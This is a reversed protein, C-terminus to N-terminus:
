SNLSDPAFTVALVVLHLEATAAAGVTYGGVQWGPSGSVGYAGAQTVSTSTNSINSTEFTGAGDAAPCQPLYAGAVPPGNAYLCQGGAILDATAAATNVVLFAGGPSGIPAATGADYVVPGPGVDSLTPAPAYDSATIPVEPQIHTSGTLGGLRLTLTAPAGDPVFYLDYSGAPITYPNVPQQPELSGLAFLYDVVNAGPACAPGFCDNLQGGVLASGDTSAAGAPRLVFGIFRGAGTATVDPNAISALSLSAPKPLSVEVAVPQSGSITTIGELVPVTTAAHAAAVGPIWGAAASVTIAALVGIQRRRSLLM